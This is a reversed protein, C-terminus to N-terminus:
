GVYPPNSGTFFEFTALAACYVAVALILGGYFLWSLIKKDFRLHMFISAVVVFKVAMMALLGGIEAAQAAFGEGWPLYSWAVEVATIVALAVATKVFMKDTPHAHGEDHTAVDATASTM